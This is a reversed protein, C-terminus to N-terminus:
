ADKIRLSPIGNAVIRNLYTSTKLFFFCRLFDLDSSFLSSLLAMIPHIINICSSSSSSGSNKFNNHNLPATNTYTKFSSDDNM